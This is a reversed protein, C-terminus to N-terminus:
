RSQFPAPRRYDDPDDGIDGVFSFSRILNFIEHSLDKLTFDRPLIETQLADHQLRDFELQLYQDSDPLQYHKFLDRLPTDLHPSPHALSQAASLGRRNAKTADLHQAKTADRQEEYCTQIAAFIGRMLNPYRGSLALLALIAQQVPPSTKTGRSRCVIKFLKYINTLRKLTRPSLDVQKCCDLMLNFEERSFENFKTGMITKDHIIVQDRLYNELHKAMIPRVRYPIQIIKELYDTGSPSGHRLLVGSYFKELSRTIYREDVALVAIFLPTRVLLQIAELVQIVRDHPCRDLDDIYVVVRAPGRPFVERLFKLKAEWGQDCHRPPLLRDSLASLDQKVQHMLGLGKKYHGEELRSSVFDALSAYVNEPMEAQKAEVQSRLRKVTNELQKLDVDTQKTIAIKKEITTELDKTRNEVGKQYEQLALSTEEFWKQATKLMAQFAIIGPTLTALFAALSAISRDGRDILDKAWQLVPIEFEPVSSIVVLAAVPFIFFLVFISILVWNRRAWQWVSARTIRGYERDIVTSAVTYIDSKTNEIKRLLEESKEKQEDLDQDGNEKVKLEVIGRSVQEYEQITENLTKWLGNQAEADLAAANGQLKKYVERNLRQFLHPGIRQRLTIFSIGILADIRQAEKSNLLEVIPRFQTYESERIKAKKADLQSEAKKLEAQLQTLSSIAEDQTAQFKKWLFDTLDPNIWQKKLKDFLTKDKLVQKLFWKRDTDNTEYLVPWIKAELDRRKSEDVDALVKILQQELTIQRDLETFITQMFSSWLDSKAFTWADFKIQYIHGVYPFLKECNPNENWAETPPIPMQRIETMRSQMLHMIYSKGGGWSGLIGITMPPELNRLLLLDALANIENTLDFLDKDQAVDNRLTGGQLADRYSRALVSLARHYLEESVSSDLDLDLELERNVERNIRMPLHPALALLIDQRQSNDSFAEEKEAEKILQLTREPRDIALKSLQEIKKACSNLQNSSDRIADFFEQEPFKRTLAIYATIRHYPDSIDGIVSAAELRQRYDLNPILRELYKAQLSDNSLKRVARLAKQQYEENKPYRAIEVLAEAKHDQGKLTDFTDDIEKKSPDPLALQIKLRLLTHDDNGEFQPWCQKVFDPELQALAILVTAQCAPDKIDQIYKLVEQKKNRELYRLVPALESFINSAVSEYSFDSSQCKRLNQTLIEILKLLQPYDVEDLGHTIIKTVLATAISGLIKAKLDPNSPEEALKLVDDFYQNNLLPILSELALAQGKPSRTSKAILELASPLDDQPLYPILNALTECRLRDDSMESQILELVKALQGPLIRPVLASLFKTKDKDNDLYPVIELAISHKNTPLLLLFDEPFRNALTALFKPAEPHNLTADLFPKLMSPTLHPAIARLAKVKDSDNEIIGAADLARELVAQQQSVASPSPLESALEVLAKVKELADDIRDIERVRKDVWSNLDMSTTADGM